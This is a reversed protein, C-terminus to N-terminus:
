FTSPRLAPCESPQLLLRLLNLWFSVVLNLWKKFNWAAAALLLNRTDGAFGKLYNRALRYDSKLHGIVPEIACRRRFRQRMVRTHHPTQEKPKPGPVLIETEGIRRTGRYGRDVIAVSPVSGTLAETQQLVEPLTHGDYLNEEHAVAGVIIGGTKTLVVSAKTGFEYKKHEKGKAVCYIHPEHLSYIKDHDNRKQALARRYLALDNRHKELAEVRLKRGLERVLRGAITKLRRTSRQAAKVTRWHGRGRQALLCKRVEKGYRRRLQIQEKDALKWCRVIVKRYLKTDTPYTVNKEQVTSDIVVEKEGGKPGHLQISVALILQM